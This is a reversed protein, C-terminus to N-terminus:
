PSRALRHVVMLLGDDADDAVGVEDVVFVRDLGDADGVDFGYGVEGGGDGEEHRRQGADGGDGLEDLGARAEDEGAAARVHVGRVVAVFGSFLVAGEIGVAVREGQRQDVFADGAAHRHEADAAAELLEVDGEAARQVGLDALDGAAQVVAHRGVARELLLERDAVRHPQGGAAAEVRMRPLSSTITL